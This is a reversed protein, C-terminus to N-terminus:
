WNRLPERRPLKLWNGQVKLESLFRYDSHGIVSLIRVLSLHRYVAGRRRYACPLVQTFIYKFGFLEVPYTGSLQMCLRM